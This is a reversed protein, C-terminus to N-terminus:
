RKKFLEIMLDCIHELFKNKMEPDIDEIKIGADISDRNTKDTWIVRGVGPIPKDSNPIFFKLDLWDGKKVEKDVVAKLGGPSINKTSANNEPLESDRIKYSFSIEADLRVYNRKEKIM